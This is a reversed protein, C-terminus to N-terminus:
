NCYEKILDYAGSEGLEGAKSLDLCAGDKDSLVYKAFGRYYYAMGDKPNLEIAKNFDLIAETCKKLQNKAYGRQFYAPEDM